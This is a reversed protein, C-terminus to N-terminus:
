ISSSSRGADTKGSYALWKYIPVVSSVQSEGHQKDMSPCFLIDTSCGYLSVMSDKPLHQWHHAVQRQFVTIYKGPLIARSSEPIYAQQWGLLMNSSPDIGSTQLDSTLLNYFVRSVKSQPWQICVSMHNIMHCGSTSCWWQCPTYLSHSYCKLCLAQNTLKVIIKWRVSENLIRM